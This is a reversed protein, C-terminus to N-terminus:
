YLPGSEDHKPSERYLRGLKGWLFIPQGRRGGIGWQIRKHVTVMQNGKDNALAKLDGRQKTEMTIQFRKCGVLPMLSMTWAM